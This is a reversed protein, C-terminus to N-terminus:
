YVEPSAKWFFAAQPYAIAYKLTLIMRITSLSLVIGKIICKIQGSIFVKTLLELIVLYPSKLILVIRLSTSNPHAKWLDQATVTKALLLTAPEWCGEFFVLTLDKFAMAM